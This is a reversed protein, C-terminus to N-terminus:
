MCMHGGVCAGGGGGSLLGVWECLVGGRGLCCVLGGVGVCMPGCVTILKKENNEYM